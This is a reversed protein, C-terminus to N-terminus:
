IVELQDIYAEFKKRKIQARTGNWLLYDATPNDRILRRLKSQGIRFYDSAEEISLTYRMWPLIPYDSPEM